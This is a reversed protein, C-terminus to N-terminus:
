IKNCINDKEGEIIAFLDDIYSLLFPQNCNYYEYHSNHQLSSPLNHPVYPIDMCYINYFIVSLVSGQFISQNGVCLLDSFNSNIETYQKTDRLFDKILSCTQPNFGIYDLKELLISHDIIDFCSSQDLGIVAAIKKNNIIKNIKSNLNLTSTVTGRGKVGGQHNDKLYFNDELYKNIQLAWCKEM